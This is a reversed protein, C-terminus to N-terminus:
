TLDVSAKLILSTNIKLFYLHKARHSSHLQLLTVHLYMFPVFHTWNASSQWGCCTFHAILNYADSFPRGHLGLGETTDSHRSSSAAHKMTLPHGRCHADSLYDQIPM